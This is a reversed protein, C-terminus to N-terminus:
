LNGRVAEQETTVQVAGNKVVYGLGMQHLLLDLASKLPVDELKLTLPCQLDVGEERLTPLDPIINLGTMLGLDQICQCLPTDRFDLSIMESLRRKINAEWDCPSC